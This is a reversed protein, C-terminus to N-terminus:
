GENLFSKYYKLVIEGVDDLTEGWAVIGEEHGGMVLIPDQGSKVCMIIKQIEEAMEPTGYLVDLSTTLMQNFYKDWMGKHHIHIVAGVGPLSEYIVAHSLSEASANIKGSCILSNESFSWSNVLPYHKEELAQLRGTATGSIYFSEATNRISINGYGIGNSYAGIFCSEFMIQRWKTLAEFTKVPLSNNAEIRKCNFKIFGESSM